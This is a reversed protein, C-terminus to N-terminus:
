QLLKVKFFTFDCHGYSTPVILGWFAMLLLTFSCSSKPPNWAAYKLFNKRIRLYHYHYYYSCLHYFRTQGTNYLFQMTWYRSPARFSCLVPHYIMTLRTELCLSVTRPGDGYYGDSIYVFCGNADHLVILAVEMNM